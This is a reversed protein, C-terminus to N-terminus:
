TTSWLKLKHDCCSWLVIKAYKKVRIIELHDYNIHPWIQSPNIKGKWMKVTLIELSFSANPWPWMQSMSPSNLPLCGLGMSSATQAGPKRGAGPVTFLATLCELALLWCGGWGPSLDTGTLAAQALKWYPTNSPNTALRRPLRSFISLPCYSPNPTPQAQSPASPQLNQWQMLASFSSMPRRPGKNACYCNCNQTSGNPGSYSSM